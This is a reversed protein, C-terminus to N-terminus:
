HVGALGYSKILGVLKALDIPNVLYADCLDQYCHAVSKIDDLATTMVIKAGYNSLIGRAEEMARIQRVAESGDMEPMMIDMCILDYRRRAELGVRYAEVAEKGNVAVNCEGYRSLFAQLLLRSSFDDEVLLSRMPGGDAHPQSAASAGCHGDDARQGAPLMVLAAVIGSIDAQNSALPDPILEKLMGVARLLLGAQGPTVATKGSRFRAVADEIDRTLERVKVLDFFNAGRRISQVARLIRNIRAEDFTAETESAALLDTELDAMHERCGAPHREALENDLDIM